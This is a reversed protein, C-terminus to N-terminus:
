DRPSPSTYLLCIVDSGLVSARLQSDTQMAVIKAANVVGIDLRRRYIIHDEVIRTAQALTVCAVPIDFVHITEYSVDTSVIPMDAM